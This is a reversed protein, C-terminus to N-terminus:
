FRYLVRAGGAVSDQAERVPGGPNQLNLADGVIAYAFYVDIDTGRFINYRIWADIETGLYNDEGTYNFSPNSTASAPGLRAPRGVDEAAWFLGGAVTFTLPQIVKYDLRLAAHLLGYQDFGLNSRMSRSDGFPPASTTDINFGFIEFWDLSRHVTDIAIFQFFDIDSGPTNVNSNADNGPTYVFKGQITLPGIVYAGRLDLLFASIDSEQGNIFTRTGFNYLFTPSLTFDGLKIRSDIGVWYRDESRQGASPIRMTATGSFSPGQLHQFAFVGDIQFGKMPIAQLTVGGFYDEGLEDAFEQDFDEETPSFYVLTKFQPHFDIDVAIAAVDMTLLTLDKLPTANVDFGGLRVRVPTEPVKIDVYLHKLEIVFNDIGLDFGGNDNIITCTEGPTSTVCRTSTAGAGPPNQSTDGWYQDFEFAVVAKSFETAAINFFLRGRTRAHWEDDDDLTYDDDTASLNGFARVHNDIFGTVTLRQDAYAPIAVLGVLALFAVIGKWHQM